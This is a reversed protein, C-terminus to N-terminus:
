KGAVLVGVAVPIERASVPGLETSLTASISAHGLRVGKVRGDPTVKVVSTDSSAFRVTRPALKVTRGDGRTGIVKIPQTAGVMVSVRQPGELAVISEPPVLRACATLVLSVVAIIVHQSRM